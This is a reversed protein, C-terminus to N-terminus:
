LLFIYTCIYSLFSSVLIGTVFRILMTQVLAYAALDLQSIRGIFLQTVVLTGFSTVRFLISPFAIRWTKKSEEWIKARLDRGDEAESGLLREETDNDM